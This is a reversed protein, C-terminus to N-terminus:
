ERGVDLEARSTRTEGLPNKQAKFNYNENLTTMLTDENKDLKSSEGIALQRATGESM